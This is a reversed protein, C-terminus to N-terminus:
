QSSKEPSKEDKQAQTNINTEGSESSEDSLRRSEKLVKVVKVPYNWPVLIRKHETDFHVNAPLYDPTSSHTLADILFDSGLRLILNVQGDARDLTSKESSFSLVNSTLIYSNNRFFDLCDEM